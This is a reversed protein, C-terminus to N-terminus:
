DVGINADILHAHEPNHISGTDALVEAEIWDWVDPAPQLRIGIGAVESLSLLQAPPVPRNM